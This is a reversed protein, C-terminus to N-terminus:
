QFAPDDWTENLTQTNEDFDFSGAYGTRGLMRNKLFHSETKNSGRKRGLAIITDALQVISHSSRINHLEPVDGNEFNKDGSRNLHSIAFM